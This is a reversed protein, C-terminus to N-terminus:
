HPLPDAVHGSDTGEPRQPYLQAIREILPKAAPTSTHTPESPAHEWALIQIGAEMLAVRITEVMAEVTLETWPRLDLVREEPRGPPPSEHILTWCRNFITARLPYPINIATLHSTCLAAVFLVFQLNPMEPRHIDLTQM